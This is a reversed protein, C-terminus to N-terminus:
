MIKNHCERLRGYLSKTYISVLAQIGLSGHWTELDDSQFPVNKSNNGYIPIATMKTMQGPCNIHAEMGGEWPLPNLPVRSEFLNHM